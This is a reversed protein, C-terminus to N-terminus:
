LTSNSSLIPSAPYIVQTTLRLKSYNSTSHLLILIAKHMRDRARMAQLLMLLVAKRLSYRDEQVRCNFILKSLQAQRCDRKWLSIEEVMAVQLGQHLSNHAVEVGWKTQHVIVEARAVLWVRHFSPSQSDVEMQSNSLWWRNLSLHFNSSRNCKVERKFKFYYWSM